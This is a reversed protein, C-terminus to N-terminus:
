GATESGHDNKEKIKLVTLTIFSFLVILISAAAVASILLFIQKEGGWKNAKGVGMSGSSAVLGSALPM